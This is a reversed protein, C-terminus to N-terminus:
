FLEPHLHMLQTHNQLFASLNFNCFARLFYCEGLLQQITADPAPNKEAAEIVTNVDNIIKYSIYWFYRTNTQTPTHGQSFSYFFPDETVQPV